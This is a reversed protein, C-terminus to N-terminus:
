ALTTIEVMPLLHEVDTRNLMGAGLQLTNAAACAIALKLAQVLLAGNSAAEWISTAQQTEVARQLGSIFAAVFADGSGVASLPNAVAARASWRGMATVLVAGESGRTIAVMQAGQQRMAQGARVADEISRVEREAYQRAEDANPKVFLPHANLGPQLSPMSTDLFTPVHATHARDLLQVYYDDPLGPPLSGSLAVASAGRLLREYLSLFAQSESERIIPGPENIETVRHTASEVIANCTRSTGAIPLFTADIGCQALGTKIFTTMPGGLLGTVHVPVGLTHLVRAVNIGKGGPLKLVDRVKHTEGVTLPTPITLTTDVAANLAVALVYPM